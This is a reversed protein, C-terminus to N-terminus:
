ALGVTLSVETLTPQETGKGVRPKTDVGNGVQVNAPLVPPAVPVNLLVVPSLLVKVAPLVGPVTVYLTHPM